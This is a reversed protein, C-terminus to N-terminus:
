KANEIPCQRGGQYDLSTTPPIGIATYASRDTKLIDKTPPAGATSTAEMNDVVIKETTEAPVNVAAAQVPVEEPASMATSLYNILGVM